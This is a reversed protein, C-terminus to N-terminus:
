DLKVEELPRGVAEGEVALVPLEAEENFVANPAMVM